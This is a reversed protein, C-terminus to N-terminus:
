RDAHPGTRAHCVAEIRNGDPDRVFAGYYDAHYHPRLGPRGDDTGGAVLAAGHFADVRSHDSAAFAWHRRDTVVSPAKVISIYCHSFDDASNRQGYGISHESTNVRPYGLAGLVADYFRGSRDLDTVTISVHDIM